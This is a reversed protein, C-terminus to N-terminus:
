AITEKTKESKTISNQIGKIFRKGASEELFKIFRLTLGPFKSDLINKTVKPDLKKHLCLHIESEVKDHVEEELHYLSRCVIEKEEVSKTNIVNLTYINIFDIERQSDHCTKYSDLCFRFKTFDDKQTKPDKMDEIRQDNTENKKNVLTKSFPKATKSLVVYLILVSLSSTLLINNSQSYNDKPEDSGDFCETINNRPTAYIFMTSPYTKSRCRYSAYPELIQHKIYIHHCMSLEEDEGESCQPHGDCVLDPHVCQSSKSCSFYDQNTCALCDPGPKSCSAQCSHPDSVTEEQQSLWESKNTCILESNLHSNNVCFKETHFDLVLQLHQRCTLSSNFVLDSKDPCQTLYSGWVEGYYYTYWPYVCMMNTGRCRFGYNEVAFTDNDYWWGCSEHKMSWVQPNSCLRTDTSRVMETGTDCTVASHEVCWYYSQRCESGCMLGPETSGEAYSANVACALFSSIDLELNSQGTHVKLEDSRDIAHFKRDNITQNSLCFHHQSSVLTSTLSHRTFYEGGNVDRPCRLDQDCVGLDTDCWTVGRCMDLLRVCSHPCRYHSMLGLYESTQYNNHCQIATNNCPSSM